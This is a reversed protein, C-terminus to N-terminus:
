HTHKIDAMILGGAIEEHARHPAMVSAVCMVHQTQLAHRRAIM